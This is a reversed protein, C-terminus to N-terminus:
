AATRCSRGSTSSYSPATPSRTCSSTMLLACTLLLAPCRRIGGGLPRQCIRSKVSAAMVAQPNHAFGKLAVGQRAWPGLPSPSTLHVVQSATGYDGLPCGNAIETMYGHYLRDEKDPGVVTIGWTSNAVANNSTTAAAATVQQALPPAPLLDLQGCELGIWGPDCKCPSGEGNLSCPPPIPPPGDAASFVFVGVTVSLLPTVM